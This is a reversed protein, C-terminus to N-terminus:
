IELPRSFIAVIWSVGQGYFLLNLVRPELMECLPAVNCDFDRVNYVNEPLDEWHIFPRYRTLATGSIQERLSYMFLIRAYIRTNYHKTISFVSQLVPELECELSGYRCETALSIGHLTGKADNNGTNQEQQSREKLQQQGEAHREGTDKQM